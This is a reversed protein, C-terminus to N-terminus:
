IISAAWELFANTIESLFSPGNQEDELQGSKASTEFLPLSFLSKSTHPFPLLSYSLSEEVGSPTPQLETPAM